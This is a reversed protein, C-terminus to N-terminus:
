ESEEEGKGERGPGGDFPAAGGRPYREDFYYFFRPLTGVDEKLVFVRKTRLIWSVESEPDLVNGFKRAGVPCAELCAPMRGERTRHLCFTCKEVVGVPRPRNSLYAMDPNVDESALEPKSYNFRRAWYPCAAECYRCGICWDYDIVTIGDPEQWTAEVPCVRVCPPDECQHCQVPLYFHGPDPVEDREYHHDSKEVDLTGRPMELVRIYQLEPERSQNNEVVCAHACKRCGICRSVNLAYVFEVGDRAQPDSVEAEVEYRRAVKERIRALAQEREQADMERYHKQFFSEISPLDQPDLERLPSLAAAFASAGGVAAASGTLFGRRSLAQQDDPPPSSM